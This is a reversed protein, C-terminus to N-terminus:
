RLQVKQIIDVLEISLQKRYIKNRIRDQKTKGTMKRLLRIEM